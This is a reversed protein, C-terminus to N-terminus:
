PNERKWLRIRTGARLTLLPSNGGDVREYRPAVATGAAEHWKAAELYRGLRDDFSGPCSTLLLPASVRALIDQVQDPLYYLMEAMVVADARLATQFVSEERVEVREDGRFRQRLRGAFVPHPEVARIVAGPVAKRLAATMVGECAGIEVMTKLKASGAIEELVRCTAGIREIEYPSTEFGWLDPLESRMEFRNLVLSQLVERYSVLAFAEVGLAAEVPIGYSDDPPRIEKTYISNLLDVKRNLHEDALVQVETPLAGRAQVRVTGFVRSAALSVSRHHPHDDQPSHTYVTAFAGLASLREVLIEQPLPWPYIDAVGLMRWERAGLAACARAFEVAREKGRGRWNGDTVAVVTAGPCRSSFTLTEDDPHAVVVLTGNRRM